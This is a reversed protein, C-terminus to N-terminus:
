FGLTGFAGVLLSDKAGGDGELWAAGLKWAGGRPGATRMSWIAGLTLDGDDFGLGAEIQGDRGFRKSAGARFRRDVEDTLDGIDAAVRIGGALDLAMGVDFIRIIEDTVDRVVVGWRAAYPDAPSMSLSGLVGLNFVTESDAFDPDLRGLSLGWSTDPGGFSKGFGVGYEKGYSYDLYGAGIGLARAGGVSGWNLAILDSDGSVEFEASFIHDADGGWKVDVAPASTDGVGGLAAPNLTWATTIGPAAVVTNGRMATEIIQAQAATAALALAMVSLLYMQVRSHRM